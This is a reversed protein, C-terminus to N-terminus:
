KELNSEKLAKELLHSLEMLKAHNKLYELDLVKSKVKFVGLIDNWQRESIEGGIKFWRLKHLITDEPSSVMLRKLPEESIVVSQRRTIQNQFILEPKLVFIDIKLMTEFHILNFSSRNKIAKELMEREVYFDNSFSEVLSNLHELKILAVIDVDQTSRPIGHLSSALSGVVACPINLRELTELVEVTVKLINDIAM